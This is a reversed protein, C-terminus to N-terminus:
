GDMAEFREIQRDLLPGASDPDALWGKHWEVTWDIATALDVRPAWGLLTHARSSDLKLTFAEAPYAGTDAKWAAGGGWAEGFHDALWHVPHVDRPGFNWAEALGSGEYLAEALAFYGAIPDLVFQWPRTAGPNRIRAPEGAAFARMLDPVLRDKAWDGGGIVNGARVSGVSPLNDGSFFSARYAATVLEACGKSSSYPDNGGMAEPERYPWLWEHNRYCKDSTVIVVSRVSDCSRVSELLHVTGMVNTEYTEVPADYSARVLSQAAMHVVVEPRAGAIAGRLAPLDRVDGTISVIGDGIKADEFLSPTTPPVLAYGTVQAGLRQLWRTTWSGKFGTHGTIFVRRDRWFERNM